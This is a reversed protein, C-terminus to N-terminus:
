LKIFKANAVGIDTNIKILYTGTKLSSIDIDTLNGANPIVTVLQGIANYIRISKVGIAAKIELNLSSSAPNPYVSFYSGFDFDSIGLEQINTIAPDTVIPFNYDFYISASNSFSNGEVLTPLTKIKFSVYGDNTADDFPLNIDEFIFEVKNGDIRTVYNHSGKGPVLSNLDFKTTDVIDKVVINEAAFTGTNEFRIMYHVYNGIMSPSIRTGELCTKDNPDFSNVVTQNFAFANDSPTEEGSTGAITANHALIDGGNVAPSDMPSNVNLTFSIERKEFPQLNAFDWSLVNSTQNTQTPSASIFDLVADNFALNVTGSQTHTGKNKYIIKYSADFGPRAASLPILVVELDNHTGNPTVCFDQTFPSAEAPFDVSVSSPLVNFYAPNEFIPTITHTGEPLDLRYNGAIDAILNGSVTGNTFAVQFNPFVIDAPSCGNADSDFRSSGAITYFQGGPTFSCYSNVHCNILSYDSIMQQFYPIQDDDACVYELNSCSTVDCDETTGNKVNITTLFANEACGLNLLHHNSSVDLSTFRNNLCILYELNPLGSVDIATLLNSSCDIFTINTLGTFDLATIPNYACEFTTMQTLNSINLSSIQNSTCYFMLMADAESLDLSTLQNESCNFSQLFSLGSLDITSLQNNICSLYQLNSQGVVNLSQLLNNDCILNFINLGNLDLATLKNNSLYLYRLNLLGNLDLSSIENGTCNLEELHILSSIDLGTLMNSGCNLKTLNTFSNIGTLDNIERSVLVLNYVELAETLQIEGDSNSDVAIPQGFSGFAISNSSSTMLLKAKFNPDPINVIQANMICGFFLAALTYLKRM